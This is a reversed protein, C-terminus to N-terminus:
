TDQVSLFDHILIAFENSQDAMKEFQSERKEFYITALQTTFGLSLRCKDNSKSLGVCGAYVM